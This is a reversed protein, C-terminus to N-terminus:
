IMNAIIFLIRWFGLVVLNIIVFLALVVIIIAIKRIIKEKDTM